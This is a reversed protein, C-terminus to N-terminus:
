KTSESSCALKMYESVEKGSGYLPETIKLLKMMSCFVFFFKKMEDIREKFLKEMYKSGPSAKLHLLKELYHSVMSKSEGGSKKYDSLSRGKMVEALETDNTPLPDSPHVLPNGLSITTEICRQVGVMGIAELRDCDRPILLWPKEEVEKSVVDGNKSTSVLDIMKTVLNITEPAVAERQMMTSAIPYSGEKADKIELLDSPLLCKKLKRDDVDHLICALIIALYIDDDLEIGDLVNRSNLLVAEFHKFGHHNPIKRVECWAELKEIIAAAQKLQVSDQDM